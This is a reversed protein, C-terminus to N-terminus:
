EKLEKAKADSVAGDSVADSPRPLAQNQQTETYGSWPGEWPAAGAGALVAVQGGPASMHFMPVVPVGKDDVPAMRAHLYPSLEAWVEKLLKFAELRTCQLEAALTTPTHLSWEMLSQLPSKGRSLLLKRWDETAANTSGAPRGRRLEAGAQIAEARAGQFRTPVAFMSLQDAPPAAAEAAAARVIERTVDARGGASM